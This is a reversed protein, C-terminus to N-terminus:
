TRAVAEPRDGSRPRCRADIRDFFEAIRQRAESGGDFGRWALRLTGALEYCADIPVIYGAFRDREPREARVLVAEVDPAIGALLPERAVLADWVALPLDAETAGAPGPYCVVTRRQRSNRFVFALGVPVELEDWEAQTL